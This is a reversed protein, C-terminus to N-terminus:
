AFLNRDTVMKQVAAFVGQVGTALTTDTTAATFLDPINIVKKKDMIIEGTSSVYPAVQIIVQAPRTTSPAIINLSTIWVGDATKAPVEIPTDLTIM